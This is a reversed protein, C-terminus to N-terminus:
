KSAPAAAATAPPIKAECTGPQEENVLWRGCLQWKTDLSLAYGRTPLGQADLYTLSALNGYDNYHYLTVCQGKRNLRANAGGPGRYTESVKRQLGDFEDTIRAVPHAPSDDAGFFAQVTQNGFEDYETQRKAYGLSGEVQKGSVGLYIAEVERGLQDYKYRTIAYGDEGAFLKGQPDFHQEELVQNPQGFVYVTRAAGSELHPSLKREADHCEIETREGRANWKQVRVPCPQKPTTVLADDAGKFRQEILNGWHDYDSEVADVLKDDAGFEEVRKERGFDDRVTHVRYVGPSLAVRQGKVDLFEEDVINDLRDYRKKWVAYGGASACAAGAVDFYRVESVNSRQDYAYTVAQFKEKVLTKQGAVDFYETRVKLGREDFSNMARSWGEPHLIPEGHVGFFAQEILHGALDHRSRRLAFGTGNFRSGEDWAHLAPQGDRDLYAFELERGQLDYQAHWGAAGRTALAPQGDLGMYREEVERGWADYTSKWGAIGESIKVVAQGDPGIYHVATERGLDDFDSTWGAYGDRSLVVQGQKGLYNTQIVHGRADRLFRLGAYGASTTAPAGLRDFYKEEVLGWSMDRVKQVSAYLGKFEAPNDDIGFYSLKEGRGSQDYTTTMRSYGDKNVTPKGIEDSYREEVLRGDRYQYAVSAYGDTGLLPKGAEDLRTESRVHGEGDYRKSIGAFGESGRLPKGDAGVCTWKVIQDMKDRQELRGYCGSEAELAPKGDVAFYRVAKRRGHEDRSYKVQHWGDKNAIPQDKADFYSESSLNSFEDYASRRSVWGENTPGARGQADLSVAKIANGREDHEVRLTTNGSMDPVPAGNVDLSTQQVLRWRADYSFKIGFARGEGPVPEGFPGLYRVTEGSVSSQAEEAWYEGATGDTGQVPSPMGNGGIFYARRTNPASAPVYIKGQVLKNDRSYQLESTIRGDADYVYRWTTTSLQRGRQTGEYDMQVWTPEGTANVATVEFAHGFFGRTVVAYSIPRHALDATKLSPRADRVAGAEVSFSAFYRTTPRVRSLYYAVTALLISGAAISAGWAVRRARVLKESARQKDLALAAEEASRRRDRDAISADVLRQVRGWEGGYRESWAPNYAQLWAQREEAAAPSLLSTPDREFSDAQVLLSRWVLGAKFEKMLWGEKPDAIRQWSRILAEHSIDVRDELSLARTGYPRLLSVGEGRFADIVGRVVAEDEGTIAVLRKLRLPRRIAQGESNVDTLARFLHEVVKAVAPAPFSEEAASIVEDAHTSLLETLGQEGRQYHELGLRWQEPPETEGGLVQERYLLMLGHQILPLPDRTASADAILRGALSREIEGGYLLAPERIARMLDEHEMRPVLYQTENVVEAFKHFQACAGFFESRMTLVAYLGTPRRERIGILLDVLLSAEQSGARKAQAFIEEFQDVVICVHDHAGLKLLEALKEGSEAGFNLIRRLELLADEGSLEPRLKSLKQALRWLPEDGPTFACSRWRNGSREADQELRPLVGAFILSSKGCGSDGHVVLLRQGITQAVVDDAMRERGFFIPWENPLFPRLGPYPAEPLQFGSSVRPPESGLEVAAPSGSEAHNV